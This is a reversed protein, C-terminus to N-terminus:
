FVIKFFWIFVGIFVLAIAVQRAKKQASTLHKFRDEKVKIVPDIRM